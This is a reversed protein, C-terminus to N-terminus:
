DNFMRKPAFDTVLPCDCFNLINFLFIRVEHLPKNEFDEWTIQTQEFIKCLANIVNFAYRGSDTGTPTMIRKAHAQPSEGIQIMLAPDNISARNLYDGHTEDNNMKVREYLSNKAKQEAVAEKVAGQIKSTMKSVDFILRKGSFDCYIKPLTSITNIGAPMGPPM